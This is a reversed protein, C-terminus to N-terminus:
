FIIGIVWKIIIILGLGAAVVLIPLLGELFPLTISM